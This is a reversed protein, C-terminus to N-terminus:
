ENDHGPSRQLEELHKKELLGRRALMAIEQDWLRGPDGEEIKSLAKQPNSRDINIDVTVRKIGEIAAAEAEAEALGTHVADKIITRNRDFGEYYFRILDQLTQHAFAPSMDEFLREKVRDDLLPLLEFDQFSNRIREIQKRRVNSKSQPSSHERDGIIYERDPHTFIGRDRPEGEPGYVRDEIPTANPALLPNDDDTETNNEDAM